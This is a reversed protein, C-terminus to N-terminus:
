RKDKEGSRFTRSAKTASSLIYTNGSFVNKVELPVCATFFFNVPLKKLSNNCTMLNEILKCLFLKIWQLQCLIVSM